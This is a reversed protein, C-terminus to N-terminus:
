VASAREELALSTFFPRKSSLFFVFLISSVVMTLARAKTVLLLLEKMGEFDEEISSIKGLRDFAQRLKSRVQEPSPSLGSQSQHRFPPRPTVRGQEYYGEDDDAEEDGGVFPKFGDSSERHGGSNFFSNPRASAPAFSDSHYYSQFVPPLTKGADKGVVQAAEGYEFLQWFQTVKDRYANALAHQEKPLFLIAKELQDIHEKLSNVPQPRANLLKEIIAVLNELKREELSQDKNSTKSTAEASFSGSSASM